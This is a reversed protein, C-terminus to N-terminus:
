RGGSTRRNTGTQSYRVVFEEPPCYVLQRREFSTPSTAINYAIWEIHRQATKLSSTTPSAVDGIGVLELPQYLFEWDTQNILEAYVDKLYEAVQMSEESDSISDVLDSDISSLASQVYQLVTKM